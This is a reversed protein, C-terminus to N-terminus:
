SKHSPFFWHFGVGLIFNNTHQTLDYTSASVSTAGGSKATYNTTTLDHDKHMGYTYGASFDLGINKQIFHTFGISGGANWEFIKSIKGTSTFTNAVNDGNGSSSGSGTGVKADLQAFFLNHSPTSNFFYYRAFPGANITFTNTKTNNNLLNTETSNADTKNSAINFGLSGGVVLHNTVFVGLHPNIGIGFNHNTTKKFGSDAYNFDSNNSAYTISGVSTGVFLIGKSTQAFLAATTASYFIAVLILKKM